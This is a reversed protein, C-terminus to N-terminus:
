NAENKKKKWIFLESLNDLKKRLVIGAGNETLEGEVLNDYNKDHFLRIYQTGGNDLRWELSIDDIYAGSENSNNNGDANIRGGIVVNLRDSFFRKTFKFSYDTRTTGDDRKTQEMGVSMDVKVATRVAKGAINNIESQLFNNLANTTSFGSQNSSSLYMGTALLAVALKNRDELTMGSLENKVSIDEPADITFELGMNDLTNTIKLGVNFLVSRSSGDSNSVGAKTQETATINMTPNMPQGTFDIYSGEQLTFTKLPIVPLAYKMEGKNVTYRGMLNLVGEPTYSMTMSGGGRVNVYSQKDASFECRGQVGAEIELKVQMDIGMFTHSVKVDKDPPVSFDAFTVIDDLRDNITLPTNTMIYTIDTANLVDILGRIKLDNTTGNVRAFFDGYLKGFLASKGTRDSDFVLFNQGYLSLNVSIEGLDSFDVYGNVTLPNQGAGYIKIENFDIRSNDFVIPENAISLDFSYIDSYVHVNEPSLSGNFLLSDVSGNVIIMGNINGSFACINNPIFGNAMIMPMRNFIASANLHNLGGVNYDGKLTAIHEDNRFIMANIDHGVVDMPQYNFVAMLDGMSVGEYAFKNAAALGNVTFGRQTQVYNANLELLGTMKPLFPVVTLLDEINLNKIVTEINQLQSDVPAAKISISCSDTKSQLFVDAFMKNGRHLDIYNNDNVAFTRYAIVPEEPYLHMHFLSDQNVEGVVGLDIGKKRQENFFTLHADVAKPSVYGNLYATFPACLDQKPCDVGVMFSLQTSDQDLDFFLTDVYVSDSAFKYVHANGQLGFEKSTKLNAAVEQYKFGHMFIFKSIPNKSGINANLTAEPMMQKLYDFNLNRDKMQKQATEAVKTFRNALTFLNNPSHFDFYLDSTNLTIATSDKTSEAHLDFKETVLSDSKLVVEVGEVAADVLFLNGFNSNAKFEGHTAHATLPDESFGLAHIDSFPLDLTIAADVGKNTMTGDVLFQGDLRKDNFDMNANLNHNKLSADATTNDLYYKGYNVHNVVMSAKSYTRPSDFDFGKGKAKISGTLCCSDSLAVFANVCFDRATLDVDYANNKMNYDTKFTASSRGCRITMDALIRNNLMSVGGTVSMGGPLRFSSAVDAPLFGRIFTLNHGIAKTIHTQIGINGDPKMLDTLVADGSIDFIGDMHASIHGVNLRQMNGNASLSVNLLRDPWANGFQKTMDATFQMIDKKGVTGEVDVSFLGPNEEAFANMDMAMNLHVDSHSTTLNLDYLYLSKADMRFVGSATTLALGGRDNGSLNRIGVYLEGDSLFSVSDIEANVDSLNVHNSDFGAFAARTGIDFNIDSHKVTLPKVFFNGKELDLRCALGAKDFHTGVFMSDASPALNINLAVDDLTIKKLNVIKLFGEEKATDEPVSDALIITLDSKALSLTPITMNGESLLMSIDNTQLKGVHGKMQMAAVLDLTNITTNTLTVNDIDFEGKFLPMIRMDLLLEEADLVTDKDQIAVVGGVSLDLPFKLLVRDVSVRMGMEGGLYDAAIDVAWKQVPPIYLAIFLLLILIFPTSVVWGTIKLIDTTKKKM